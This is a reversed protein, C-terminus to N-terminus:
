PSERFFHTEAERAFLFYVFQLVLNRLGNVTYGTSVSYSRPRDMRLLILSKIHSIVFHEDEDSFRLSSVHCLCRLIEGGKRYMHTVLIDLRSIHTLKDNKLNPHHWSGRVVELRSSWPVKRRWSSLREEQSAYVNLNVTSMGRYAPFTIFPSIYTLQYIEDYLKDSGLTTWTRRVESRIREQTCVLSRAHKHYVFFLTSTRVLYEHMNIWIYVYICM